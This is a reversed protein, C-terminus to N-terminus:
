SSVLKTLGAGHRVMATVDLAVGKAARVPWRAAHGEACRQDEAASRGLLPLACVTRLGASRGCFVPLPRARM